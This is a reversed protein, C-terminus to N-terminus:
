PPMIEIPPDIIDGGEDLLTTAEVGAHLFLKSSRGTNDVLMLGLSRGSGIVIRGTADARGFADFTVQIAGEFNVARVDAGFGNKGDLDVRYTSQRGDLTAVDTIGAIKYYKGDPDFSLTIPTRRKIAESRAMKLDLQIRRGLARVRQNELYSIMRPRALAAVVGILAIVIVLEILTFGRRQPVPKGAQRKVPQFAPGVSIEDNEYM